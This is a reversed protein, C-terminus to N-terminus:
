PRPASTGSDGDGGSADKAQSGTAGKATPEDQPKTATSKTRPNKTAPKATGRTATATKSKPKAKAKTKSKTKAASSKSDPVFKLAVSNICYRLGTPPPGDSFVHGLHADCRSCMVEIREEAMSNDLETALTDRAMPAYFSPWGTGSDFKTRSSFLEAGCCVCLYSGKAHNHVYQGTFPAETMKMRCVEFQARTLQRAWERDSKVVRQKTEKETKDSGGLDQALGLAPVGLAALFLALRRNM